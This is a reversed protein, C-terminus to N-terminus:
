LLINHLLKCDHIYTVILDVMNKTLRVVIQHGRDVMHVIYVCASGRPFMAVHVTYVSATWTSVHENYENTSFHWHHAYVDFRIHAQGGCLLTLSGPSQASPFSLLTFTVIIDQFFHIDGLIIRKTIEGELNEVFM